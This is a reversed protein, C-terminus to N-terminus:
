RNILEIIKNYNKDLLFVEVIKSKIKLKMEINKINLELVTMQKKTKPHYKLKDEFGNKQYLNNSSDYNIRKYMQFLKNKDIYIQKEIFIFDSKFNEISSILDSKNTDAYLSNLTYIDFSLIKEFMLDITDKTIMLKYIETIPINNKWDNLDLPNFSFNFNKLMKGFMYIMKKNKFLKSVKNILKNDFCKRVSFVCYRRNGKEIPISKYNNTTIIYRTFTDIKRLSLGKENLIGHTRQSYNKM